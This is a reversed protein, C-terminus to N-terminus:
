NQATLADAKIYLIPRVSYNYICSDWAIKGESSILICQKDEAKKAIWPTALWWYTNIDEMYKDFTEVHKRYFGLTPISIKSKVTGYTKYGHVSTLDTEFELVNEEGIADEIRPLINARLDNLLDSIAFNSSKSDFEREFIRERTIIPIIGNEEPFKIFDIGAITIINLDYVNVRDVLHSPMDYMFDKWKLVTKGGGEYTSAKGYVDENFNYATEEKHTDWHHNNLYKSGNAWRRGLSHLHQTFNMAEFITACHMVYGSPYDDINFVM